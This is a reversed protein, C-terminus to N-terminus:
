QLRAELGAKVRAWDDRVVSFWATDRLTGDARRMHKRHVGEFTAGMKLMAARSHANLADTKLEVREAGCNFAHGILLLKASPNVIGGQAGKAYWTSGIEVGADRARINLYCSQGVCAGGLFIAHPISRGAAQDARLADFWAGYGDRVIPFPMHRFLEPEAAALAALPARHGEEFPELRVRGLELAAAALKM